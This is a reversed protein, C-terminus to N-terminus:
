ARNVPGRRALSKNAAAPTKRFHVIFAPPGDSGTMITVDSPSGLGTAQWSSLAPAQYLLQQWDTMEESMLEPDPDDLVGVMECMSSACTTQYLQIRGLLEPARERLLLQMQHETAPAWTPDRGERAMEARFQTFKSGPERELWHELREQLYAPLRPIQAVEPPPSQAESPPDAHRAAVSRTLPSTWLGIADNGLVILAGGCIGSAAAIWARM